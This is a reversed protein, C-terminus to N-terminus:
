HKRANLRLKERKEQTTKVEPLPFRSLYIFFIWKWDEKSHGM